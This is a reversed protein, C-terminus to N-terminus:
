IPIRKAARKGTVRQPWCVGNAKVYFYNEVLPLSRAAKQEIYPAPTAQPHPWGAVAETGQQETDLHGTHGGLM